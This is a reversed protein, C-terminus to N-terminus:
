IVRLTRCTFFTTKVVQSGPQFSVAYSAFTVYRTMWRFLHTKYMSIMCIRWQQSWVCDIAPIYARETHWFIGLMSCHKDHESERWIEQESIQNNQFKWRDETVIFAFVRCWFVSWRQINNRACPVLLVTPLPFRFAAAKPSHQVCSIQVCDAKQWVFGKPKHTSNPKTILQESFQAIEKIQDRLHYLSWGSCKGKCRTWRWYLNVLCRANVFGVFSRYVRRWRQPRTWSM